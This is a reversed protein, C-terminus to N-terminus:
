LSGLVREADDLDAGFLFGPVDRAGDVLIRLHKAALDDSPIASREMARRAAAVDTGFPYGPVDELIDILNALASIKGTM